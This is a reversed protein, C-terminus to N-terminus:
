SLSCPRERVDTLVGALRMCSARDKKEGGEGPEWIDVYFGTKEKNVM